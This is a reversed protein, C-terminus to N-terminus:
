NTINIPTGDSTITLFVFNNIGAQQQVTLTPPNEQVDKMHSANVFDFEWQNNSAGCEVGYTSFEVTGVAEGTGQGGSQENDVSFHHAKCLNEVDQTVQTVSQTTLYETEPSTPQSNDKGVLTYTSPMNPFVYGAYEYTDQLTPTPYTTAYSGESGVTYTSYGKNRIVLYAGICIVLLAVVVMFLQIADYGKIKLAKM